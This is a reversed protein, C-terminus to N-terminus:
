AALLVRLVSGIKLVLKPMAVELFGEQVEVALLGQNLYNMETGRTHTDSCARM